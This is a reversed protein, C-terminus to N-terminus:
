CEVGVPDRKRDKLHTGRIAEIELSKGELRIYLNYRSRQGGTCLWSTVITTFDRMPTDSGNDDPNDSRLTVPRASPVTVTICPSRGWM